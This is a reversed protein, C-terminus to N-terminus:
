SSTWGRVRQQHRQQESQKMRTSGRMACAGRKWESDHELRSAYEVICQVIICPGGAGPANDSSM